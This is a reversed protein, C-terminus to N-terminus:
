GGAADRVRADARANANLVGRAVEDVGVDNVVQAFVTPGDGRMAAADRAMVGLDAGVHPACDTKNIV